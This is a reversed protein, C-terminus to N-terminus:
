GHQYLPSFMKDKMFIVFDLASNMAKLIDPKARDM